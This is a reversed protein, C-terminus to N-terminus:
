SLRKMGGISWIGKNTMLVINDQVCKFVMIPSELLNCHQHLSFKYFENFKHFEYLVYETLYEYRFIILICLRTEYIQM